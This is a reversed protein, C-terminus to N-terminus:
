DALGGFQGVKGPKATTTRAWPWARPSQLSGSLVVMVPSRGPLLRGVSEDMESPLSLEVCRLTSLQGPQRNLGDDAREPVESLPAAAAGTSRLYVHWFTAMPTAVTSECPPM